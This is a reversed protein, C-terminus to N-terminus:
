PQERERVSTRERTKELIKERSPICSHRDASYVEIMSSYIDGGGEGMEGM